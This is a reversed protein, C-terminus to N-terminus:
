YAGFLAAQNKRGAAATNIVVQLVAPKRTAHFFLSSNFTDLAAQIFRFPISERM